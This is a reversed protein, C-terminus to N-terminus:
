AESDLYDFANQKLKLYEEESGNNMWEGLYGCYHTDYYNNVKVELREAEFLIEKVKM